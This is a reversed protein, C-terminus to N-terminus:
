CDELSKELLLEREAYDFEAYLRRAAHNGALVGLRIVSAGARRAYNEAAGLLASGVGEGRRGPLVVIDSVYAYHYFMEHPEEQPVHPQLAVYGIVEGQASEAVLIQGAIEPDGEYLLRVYDDAMLEGDLVYANSQAEAAQLEVVLQRLAGADEPRVTRIKM